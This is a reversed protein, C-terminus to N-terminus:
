AATMFFRLPRGNADSIAHLKTNIGGRTRGVLQRRQDGESRLNTATLHAKLYTADIKIKKQVAAEAALGDM